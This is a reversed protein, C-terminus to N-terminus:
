RYEVTITAWEVGGRQDRVVMMLQDRDGPDKDTPLQWTIGMRRDFQLGTQDSSVDGDTTRWEAAYDEVRNELFVTQDEIDFKLTQYREVDDPEFVPTLSIRGGRAARVLSSRGLDPSTHYRMGENFLEDLNDSDDLDFGLLRPNKNPARPELCPWPGEAFDEDPIREECFEIGLIEVFVDRLEPPADPHSFDIGIPMRKFARETDVGIEPPINPNQAAVIFRPWEPFFSVLPFRLGSDEDVVDPIFSDIVAPTFELEFGVNRLQGAPNGVDRADLETTFERTKWVDRVEDRTAEPEELLFADRDWDYCVGQGEPCLSVTTEVVGHRPEFAFVDVEVNTTPLPLFPPRQEAPLLGHFPHFMIEAPETRLALVRLDNIRDERDFQACSAALAFLVLVAALSCRTM